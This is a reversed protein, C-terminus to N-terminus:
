IIRSTVNVYWIYGSSTTFDEIDHNKLRYIIATSCLSEITGRNVSIIDERMGALEKTNENVLALHTGKVIRGSYGYISKIYDKLGRLSNFLITKERENMRIVEFM